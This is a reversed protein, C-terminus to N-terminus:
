RKEVRAVGNEGANDVAQQEFGSPEISQKFQGINKNKIKIM